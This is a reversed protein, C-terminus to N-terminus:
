RTLVNKRGTNRRLKDKVGKYFYFGYCSDLELFIENSDNGRLQSDLSFVESMFIELSGCFDKGPFCM